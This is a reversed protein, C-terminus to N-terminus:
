STCVIYVVYLALRHQTSDKEIAKESFFFYTCVTWLCRLKKRRKLLFTQSTAYVLVFQGYRRVICAQPGKGFGFPKCIDM